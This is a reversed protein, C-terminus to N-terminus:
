SQEDLHEHLDHQACANPLAEGSDTVMDVVCILVPFAIRQLRAAPLSAERLAGATRRPQLHATTIHRTKFLPARCHVTQIV